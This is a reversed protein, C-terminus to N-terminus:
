SSFQITTCCLSNRQFLNEPSSVNSLRCNMFPMNSCNGKHQTLFASSLWQSEYQDAPFDTYTALYETQLSSSAESFGFLTYSTRRVCYTKSFNWQPQLVRWHGLAKITVDQHNKLTSTAAGGCAQPHTCLHLCWSFRCLLYPMTVFTWLAENTQYTPM